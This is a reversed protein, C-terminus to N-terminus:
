KKRFKEYFKRVERKRKETLKRKYKDDKLKKGRKKEWEKASISFEGQTKDRFVQPIVNFACFPITRGDPTTYHICCREVRDM